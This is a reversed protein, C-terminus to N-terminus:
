REGLKRGPRALCGVKCVADKCLACVTQGNPGPLRTLFEERWLRVERVLAPLSQLAHAVFIHIGAPAELEALQREIEAPMVWGEKGGHRPREHIM